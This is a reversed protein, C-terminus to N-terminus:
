SRSCPSKSPLGLGIISFDLARTGNPNVKLFDESKQQNTRIDIMEHSFSIDYVLKLEELAIQVKKGNPTSMTLLHLDKQESKSIMKTNIYGPQSIYGPQNHIFNSRCDEPVASPM